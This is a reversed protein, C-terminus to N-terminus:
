FGEKLLRETVEQISSANSKNGPASSRGGTHGVEPPIGQPASSLGQEELYRAIASEEVEAVHTSYTSALETMDVSPDDIVAQLLMEAPVNPFLSEIQALEREISTYQQQESIEMMSQRLVDVESVEEPETYSDYQDQQQNGLLEKLNKLQTLQAELEAVRTQSQEAREAIENRDSIVKSFRSYPVAHGSPETEEEYESEGEVVEEEQGDVFPQNAQAPQETEGGRLQALVGERQENSLVSMKRGKM